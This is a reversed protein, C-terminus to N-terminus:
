RVTRHKGRVFYCWGKWVTEQLKLLYNAEGMGWETFNQSTKRKMSTDTGTYYMIGFAAVLIFFANIM